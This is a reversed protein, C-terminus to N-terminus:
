CKKDELTKFVADGEGIFKKLEEVKGNLEGERGRLKELEKEIAKKERRKTGLLQQLHNSVLSM